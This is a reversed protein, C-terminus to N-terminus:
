KKRRWAFLGLGVLGSGLLLISSPEPVQAGSNVFSYHGHAQSSEFPDVTDCIPDGGELVYSDYYGGCPNTRYVGSHVDMDYISLAVLETDIGQAVTGNLFIEIGLSGNFGGMNSSEPGMVFFLSGGPGLTTTTTANVNGWSGYNSAGVGGLTGTFSTTGSNTITLWGTDPNASGGIGSVWYDYGTEIDFQYPIHAAQAVGTLYFFAFAAIFMIAKNQLRNM